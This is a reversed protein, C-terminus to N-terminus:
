IKFNIEKIYNFTEEDILPPYDLQSDEVDDLSLVVGFDEKIYSLFNKKFETDRQLVGHIELNGGLTKSYTVSRLGSFGKSLNATPFYKKIEVKTYMNSYLGKQFNSIIQKFNEPFKLVVMHSCCSKDIDYVYDTVYYEQKRIFDFFKEVKEEYTKKNIGKMNLTKTQILVFLKPSNDGTDEFNFDYIGVGLKILENLYSIPQFGYVRLAPYLYKWTRNIYLKGDNIQM